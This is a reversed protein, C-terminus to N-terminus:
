RRHLLSSNKEEGCSELYLYRQFKLNIRTATIRQEFNIFVNLNPSTKTAACKGYKRYCSRLYACGIILVVGKPIWISILAEGRM